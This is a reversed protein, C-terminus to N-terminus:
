IEIEFGDHATRIIDPYNTTVLVFVDARGDFYSYDVKINGYVTEHAKPLDHETIGRYKRLEGWRWSVGIAIQDIRHILEVDWLIGHGVAFTYTQVEADTISFHVTRTHNKIEYFQLTEILATHKDNIEELTAELEAERTKSSNLLLDYNEKLTHYSANLDEFAEINEEIRSFRTDLDKYLAELSSYASSSTDLEELLELNREELQTINNGLDLVLTQLVEINDEYSKLRPIYTGYVVGGGIILGFVVGLIVGRLRIMKTM